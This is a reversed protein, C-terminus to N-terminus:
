IVLQHAKVIEKAKNKAKLLKIKEEAMKQLSDTAPRLLKRPDYIQPNDKINKRLGKNFAVRLDTDINFVAVGHKIAAQMQHDPVGSAGHLVLPVRVHEHILKLRHLDIHERLTTLIKKIEPNVPIGHFSGVAVALTDVGTDRVFKAAQIPDTMLDQGSKVSQWDENGLLRGLEAQVWVGRKHAYAVVAKTLKVNEKYELHSADIMVSSYGHAILKKILEFDKCHDQHLAIPVDVERVVAKIIATIEELGAYEIAGESTQMIVPANQAQAARAIGQTTELDNTNFAPVAYKGVMKKNIIRGIHVLM